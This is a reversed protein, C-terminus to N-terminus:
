LEFLSKILEKIFQNNIRMFFKNKKIEKNNVSIHELENYVKRLIEVEPNIKIENEELLLFKKSGHELLFKEKVSSNLGSYLYNECLVRIGISLMLIDFSELNVFKKVEKICLEKFRYPDNFENFFDKLESCSKIITKDFGDTSFHLYYKSLVDSINPNLDNRRILMEEILPSCTYASNEINYINTKQLQFSSFYTPDLHTFLFIFINKDDKKFNEIIKLILYQFFLINAGDLYDFIDDFILIKDKKSRNRYLLKEIQAILILLDREGSSLANVNNIELTLENNVVSFFRKNPDILQLTKTIEEFIEKSEQFNIAKSIEEKNINLLSLELIGISADIENEFVDFIKLKNLILSLKENNLLPELLNNFSIERILSEKTGNKLIKLGNAFDDIAKSVRKQSKINLFDKLLNLFLKDKLLSSINICLKSINQPLCEKIHSQKIELLFKNPNSIIQIKESKLRKSPVIRGGKIRKVSSKLLSLSNIVCVDYHESIENKEKDASYVLDDKNNKVHITLSPNDTAKYLEDKDLNLKSPELSSFATAVTTKGRGNSAVIFNVKNPTCPFKTLDISLEKFGKINNLRIERFTYM